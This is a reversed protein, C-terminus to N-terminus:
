LIDVAFAELPIRYNRKQQWCLEHVDFEAFYGSDREEQSTHEFTMHELINQPSFLYCDKRSYLNCNHRNLM